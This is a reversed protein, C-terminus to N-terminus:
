VIGQERLSLLEEQSIGCEALLQATHEGSEPVTARIQGPTRSLKIPIGVQRVRGLGPVEAEPLMQRHIVHPDHLLEELDSVATVCTDKGAFSDLWEKLTRTSIVAQIEEKMRDQVDLPDRLQPIM